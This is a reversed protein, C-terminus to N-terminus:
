IRPLMHRRPNIDFGDPTPKYPGDPSRHSSQFQRLGHVDIEGVVFYDELGGKVRVVDRSWSDKSPVRIRSDGYQRDNCQVVYAHMDLAASEVLANFTETDKNWEPVFLADVHGRLSTRYAINTLESCLLLAFHFGGHDLVPPSNWPVRPKLVRGGFRKLEAEEHQAPRQKDQRYIMTTPFGIADHSLAAWTQSRVVKRRAHQYEVGCILSIGRRALKESIGLFWHPPVSLEPLILYDPRVRCGLIANLLGFLRDPRTHDPDSGRTVAAVWSQRDTKWSAVAIRLVGRPEDRYPIQIRLPQTETQRPLKGEPKFGRLALLCAAIEAVGEPSFPSPHLLYLDQITLPRTPFLIGPTLRPLGPVGALRSLVVTGEVVAQPVLASAADITEGPLSKKGIRTQGPLCLEGPLLSQKLPRYALDRKFYSRNVRRLQSVEHKDFLEVSEGLQLEWATKEAESLRLPFAGEISQTVLHKLYELYRRRIADQPYRSVEGDQATIRLDCTEMDAVIRALADLIQRLHDFDGCSTVLAIVRPLYTAFDFFTPLVLVHRILSKTFGRRRSQWVECQLIRANAELDRLRLAFNARRVSIKDANRLSDAPDGGAQIATLITSEIQLEGTPLDPLSRWESTRARIQHEIAALLTRGNPGSLDFTKTKARGFRIDSRKLYPKSFRTSGDPDLSLAAGCRRRLWAWVGHATRFGSRNEIVLIIDDVYRGYYLPVVRREITRDLEFLAVNAIVASATLGVPLGVSLGNGVPTAKAWASLAHIFSRHLAAEAPTLTVGIRKLFVKSLMYSPDIRHFYASVDATIAVVSKDQDLAERIARIGDDRWKCYPFLYPQTSGLSLPNLKGDAGRRLRNGRASETLREEFKTGVQQIWLTAFVHFDIPLEEMLRFEAKPPPLEKREHFRLIRSWQRTPDSTVFKHTPTKAVLKKPVLTWADASISPAQGKALQKQLRKLNTLLKSEYVYLETRCERSSYFLDVKTKRYAMGLAQLTALSSMPSDHSSM